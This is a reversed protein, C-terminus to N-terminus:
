HMPRLVLLPGSACSDTRINSEKRRRRPGMGAVAVELLEVVLKRWASSAQAAQQRPYPAKRNERQTQVWVAAFSLDEPALAGAALGAIRWVDSERFHALIACGIPRQTM